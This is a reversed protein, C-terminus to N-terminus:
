RFCIASTFFFYSGLVLGQSVHHLVLSTSSSFEEIRVNQLRGRLDFVFKYTTLPSPIVTTLSTTSMTKHNLTTTSNFTPATSTATSSLATNTSHPLQLQPRCNYKEFNACGVEEIVRCLVLWLLGSMNVVVVSNVVVVFVVM